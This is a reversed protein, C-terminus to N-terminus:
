KIPVRRDVYYASFVLAVLGLLAAGYYFLLGPIGLHVSFMGGLLLQVGICLVLFVAAVYGIRTGRSISTGRPTSAVFDAVSFRDGATRRQEMAEDLLRPIETEAVGKKRLAYVIDQKLNLDM